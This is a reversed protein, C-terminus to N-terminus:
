PIIPSTTGIAQLSENVMLDGAYNSQQCVYEFLEEGERWVLNMNGELPQEYTLPDTMVFRYRMNDRDTRTFYETIHVSETHPLGMREFWFDTNYGTSDIVLTDGDWWGVSHGYYTPDMDTPHSRGDMYVERYTHPGGIDFIFLRELEPMELMEVGYPTLFQRIAGSPKCRAHPELDHSQRTDFLGQAWPKFAIDDVVFFPIRTSYDPVWLGRPEGPANSIFMRGNDDRPVPEREAAVVPTLVVATALALLVSGVRGTLKRQRM